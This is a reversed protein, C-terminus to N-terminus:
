GRTIRARPTALAATLPLLLTPALTLSLWTAAPHRDPTQSLTGPILMALFLFGVVIITLYRLAGDSRFVGLEFSSTLPLENIKVYNSPVATHQGVCHRPEPRATSM